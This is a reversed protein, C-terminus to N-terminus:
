IKKLKFSILGMGDRNPEFGKFEKGRVTFTLSDIESDTIQEGLLDTLINDEFTIRSFDSNVLTDKANYELFTDDYICGTNFDNGKFNILVAESFEGPADIVGSFDDKIFQPGITM